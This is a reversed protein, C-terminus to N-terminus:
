YRSELSSRQGALVDAELLAQQTALLEERAVPVLRGSGELHMRLFDRMAQSLRTYALEGDRLKGSALMVGLLFGLTAGGSAACWGIVLASM